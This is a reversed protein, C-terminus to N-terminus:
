LVDFIRTKMQDTRLEFEDNEAVILRGPDSAKDRQRTPGLEIKTLMDTQISESPEYGIRAVYGAVTSRVYHYAISNSKLKLTSKPISTNQMLSMNHVRVHAHGEMDIEM